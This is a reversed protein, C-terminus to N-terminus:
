PDGRKGGSDDWHHREAVCAQFATLLTHVETLLAHEQQILAAQRALDQAQVTAEWETHLAQIQATLTRFRQRFATHERHLASDM